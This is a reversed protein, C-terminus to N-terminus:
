VLHVRHRQSLVLSWCLWKCTNRDEEVWPMLFVEEWATMLSSSQFGDTDVRENNTEKRYFIVLPLLVISRWNGNIGFITIDDAGRTIFGYFVLSQGVSSLVRIMVVLTLQFILLSVLILILLSVLIMLIMMLNPQGHLNKQSEGDM